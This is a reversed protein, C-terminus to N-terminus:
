DRRGGDNVANRHERHAPRMSRLARFCERGSGSITPKVSRGVPGFPRAARESFVYSNGACYILILFRRTSSNQSAPHRANTVVVSVYLRAPRPGNRFPPQQGTDRTSPNNPSLGQPRVESCVLGLTALVSTEVILAVHPMSNQM